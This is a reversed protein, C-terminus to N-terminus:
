ATATATARRCQHKILQGDRRRAAAEATVSIMMVIPADIKMRPMACRDHEALCEKQRREGAVLRQCRRRSGAAASGQTSPTGGHDHQQQPQEEVARQEALGHEGGGSVPQRRLEDADIRARM